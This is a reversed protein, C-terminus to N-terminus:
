FGSAQGDVAVVAPLVRQIHDIYRCCVEPVLKTRWYDMLAQELADLTRPKYHNRVAEKM